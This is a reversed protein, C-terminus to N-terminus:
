GYWLFLEDDDDNDVRIQMIEIKSIQIFLNFLNFSYTKNVPM